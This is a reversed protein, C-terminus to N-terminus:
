KYVTYMALEALAEIRERSWTNEFEVCLTATSPVIVGRDVRCVYTSLCTSVERQSNAYTTNLSM